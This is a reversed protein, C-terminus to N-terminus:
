EPRYTACVDESEWATVSAVKIDSNDIKAQLERVIYLAINESSPNIDYFCDIENLVKHDLKELIESVHKKIKAFDMIVGANNLDKGVVCVEIKWNHGHMNECKKAVMKLQHAAAFNSIVKLEFM